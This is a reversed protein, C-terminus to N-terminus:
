STRPRTGAKAALHRHTRLSFWRLLSLSRPMPAGLLCQGGGHHGHSWCSPATPLPQQLSFRQHGPRGPHPCGSRERSGSRHTLWRRSKGPGPSNPMGPYLQTCPTGVSLPLRLQAGSSPCSRRCPHAPGLLQLCSPGMPRAAEWTQRDPPPQRPPWARVLQVLGAGAPPVRLAPSPKRAPSKERFRIGRRARTHSAWPAPPLWRDGSAPEGHSPSPANGAPPTVALIGGIGGAQSFHALGRSM